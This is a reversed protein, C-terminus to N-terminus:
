GKLYSNQGDTGNNLMYHDRFTGDSSYGSHKM